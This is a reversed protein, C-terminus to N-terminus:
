AGEEVLAVFLGAGVLDATTGPNRRTGDERLWRDLAALAAARQAEPAALAAAARGSAERATEVGCKRAILSDPVAALTTVHALVAAENWGLGQARAGALAPLVTGFTLDYHTAYERAITDRAAALRMAELLTVSPEAGVDQEPARGLGGPTATRIAAYADRADAVTLADLVRGLRPRLPGAGASAAHALPALLLLLGLNTNVAVRRRTDKVAQLITGGVGAQGLSRFAPGIAGASVVFDAYTMDPFDRGPSVNGPKPATAELVCAAQALAAVRAASM